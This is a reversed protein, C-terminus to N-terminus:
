NRKERRSFVGTVGNRRRVFLQGPREGGGAEGSEANRAHAKRLFELVTGEGKECAELAEKMEEETPCRSDRLDKM